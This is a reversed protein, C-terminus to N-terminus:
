HSIPNPATKASPLADKVDDYVAMWFRFDSERDDNRAAIACSLAAEAAEAGYFECLARGAEEPSALDWFSDWNGVDKPM